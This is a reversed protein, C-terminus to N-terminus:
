RRFALSELLKAGIGQTVKYIELILATGGKAVKGVITIATDSIKKDERVSIVMHFGGTSSIPGGKIPTKKGDIDAEIWFNRIFKPM